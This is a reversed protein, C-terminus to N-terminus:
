PVSSSWASLDGSEFGDSFIGAGRFVARSSPFFAAVYLHRGDPSVAVASPTQM